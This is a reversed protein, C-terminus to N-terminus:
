SSMREDNRVENKQILIERSRLETRDDQCTSTETDPSKMWHYFKLNLKGEGRWGEWGASFPM